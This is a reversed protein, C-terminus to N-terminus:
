EFLSRQTNDFNINKEKKVTNSVKEIEDKILDEINLEKVLCEYGGWNRPDFAVTQHITDYIADTDWYLNKNAIVNDVLALDYKKKSHPLVDKRKVVILEDGTTEVIRVKMGAKSAAIITKDGCIVNNESDVVISRACGLHKISDILLQEYKANGKNFSRSKYFEVSNGNKDKFVIKNM